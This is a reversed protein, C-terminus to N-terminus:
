FMPLVFRMVFPEHGTKHGTPQIEVCVAGANHSECKISARTVSTLNWTRQLELWSRVAKRLPSKNKRNNLKLQHCNNKQNQSTSNYKELRFLVCSITNTTRTLLEGSVTQSTQFSNSQLKLFDASFCVAVQYKLWNLMDMYRSKHQKFEKWKKSRNNNSLGRTWIDM